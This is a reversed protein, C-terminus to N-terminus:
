GATLDPFIGQIGVLRCFEDLEPAVHAYVTMWHHGFGGRAVDRWIRHFPTQMVFKLPNGEFVMSTRVAEGQFACMRYTGKRGVLNVFTVPGPRASYRICVGDHALRVPHLIFGNEDALPLWKTALSPEIVMDAGRRVLGEYINNLFSTVPALNAAHPDM